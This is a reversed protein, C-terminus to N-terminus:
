YVCTDTIYHTDDDDDHGDDDTVLTVRISRDIGRWVEWLDEVNDEDM